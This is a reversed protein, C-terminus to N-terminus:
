PSLVFCVVSIDLWTLISFITTLLDRMSIVPRNRARRDTRGDTSIDPRTFASRLYM